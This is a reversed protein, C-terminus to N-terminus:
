RLLLLGGFKGVRLTGGGTVVGSTVLEGDGYTVGNVTLSACKLTKGSPISIRGDEDGTVTIPTKTTLVGNGTVELVGDNSIDVGSATKWSAGELFVYRGGAVSLSGTSTSVGGAYHPSAGKKVFSVAGQFSVNDTQQAEEIPVTLTTDEDVYVKTLFTPASDSYYADADGNFTHSADLTLTAPQESMITGKGAGALIQLEQKTGALDWKATKTGEVFGIGAVSSETAGFAFAHDATTTLTRDGGLFIGKRVVNGSTEFRLTGADKLIPKELSAPVTKVVITSGDYYAYDARTRNSGAAFSVGGEFTLTAGVEGLFYNASAAAVTFLGKVVNTRAIRFSRTSSSSNVSNLRIERNELTVGNFQLMYDPKNAGNLTATGLGLANDAFVKVGVNFASDDLQPNACRISLLGGGNGGFTDVDTHVTWVVGDETIIGANEGLTLRAVLSSGLSWVQEVMLRVKCDLVVEGDGNNVLGQSGLKLTASGSITSVTGETGSNVVIGKLRYDSEAPVSVTVGAPITAVLSGGTLDPLETAGAAGWNAPNDISTDDGGNGTWTATTTPPEGSGVSLKAGGLLWEPYDEASYIGEPIETGDVTVSKFRVIRDATGELNLTAGAALTLPAGSFNSSADAAVELSAGAAVSLLDLGRVSAGEAFCWTGGNVYIQTAPQNLQRKVYTLTKTAVTPAWKFQLHQGSTVTYIDASLRTDEACALTISRTNHQQVLDFTGEAEEAEHYRKITLHFGEIRLTKPESGEVELAALTEERINNGYDMRFLGGIMVLTGTIDTPVARTYLTGAGAKAVIAPSLLKFNGTDQQSVTVGAGIDFTFRNSGTFRAGYDNNLEFTYRMKIEGSGTAVLSGDGWFCFRDTNPSFDVGKGEFVYNRFSTQANKRVTIPVDNTFIVTDGDGPAVPAELGSAYAWNGVDYITAGDAGKWYYTIGGAANGVILVGDGSLWEFDGEVYRGDPVATGNYSISKPKFITSSGEIKLTAGSALAVPAGSFCPAASEAIELGAGSAVTFTNVNKLGAGNAFRMKGRSVQIKMAASDWIRDVMTITRAGSPNWHLILAGTSSVGTLDASFREVDADGTIEVQYDNGASLHFTLTKSAEETESYHIMRAHMADLTFKKTEPGVVAFNGFANNRDQPRETTLIGAEFTLDGRSSAGVELFQTTQFTGAGRKIFHAPSYIKTTGSDYVIIKAGEAVDVVFTKDEGAFQDANLELPYGFTYTGTGTVTIGGGGYVYQRYNSGRPLTVSAGNFEYKLYRLDGSKTLTLAEENNFVVTDGQGPAKKATKGDVSWNGATGTKNDGADGTWTYTEANLALASLAAVVFMLKKM